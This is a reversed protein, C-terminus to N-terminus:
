FDKTLELLRTSQMDDRCSDTGYLAAHNDGDDAARMSANVEDCFV